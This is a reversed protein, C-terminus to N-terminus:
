SIGALSRDNRRAGRPVAPRKATRDMPAGNAREDDLRFFAVREDMARAQHDLAKATAANEEVLASNQQTVGDMQSLARNVQELGTAQEDSATAIDSVIDAVKKISAVIEALAAGATNVLKAGDQVQRNSNTILEKIDKAAQSSRQALSRVESAVVAFGRGAEGARAAEVAANLALLNTQRAIEDIVGIIDSIKRSSEEIRAMAKVAEAVVRGNRDAVDCASSASANAQEANEANRKVIASIEELSASTQELTAAQEETRQSLDMTSVSIETSADSVERTSGSLVQITERLRTITSNFEDRIAIYADPFDDTLRFTLDGSSLRGLGANLAHVVQSQEESHRRQEEAAAAQVQANIRRQESAEHELREKEIARDRFVLVARAMEGIEDRDKSAPVDLKTDGASLRRMVDGISGLRRILNRQVYFVAIAGSVILSLVAVIILLTRNSDLNDILRGIGLKMRQETENVLISVAQDLERQIRANEDITRDARAGAALEKGRLALVSDDGHGFTLLDAIAKKTEQDELIKSVKVLSDASARFRDQFPVLMAADNAVSAESIVSAVLHSQAAIELANRLGTIQNTVLDKIVRSSRKVADESQVMLDFNLDDILSILIGTLREHARFVNQLRAMDNAGGAQAKFDALKVLAGVQEKLNDFKAGKPLKALQKQARRASSTFRDELLALIPGSSTLTGATLLGTVLNTEAGVEITAQMIQLGDNVLAKVIKDATKGVDEATTVVDFYSDDVIPGLKEGIRAHTKHLADLKAELTGRLTSREAIAIALSKLNVDLRQSTAEVSAFAASTRGERLREMAASLARYREQITAAIAKQEDATKASVFRAAAASIEGSTASLRLADTMLPVERNAVSQVGLEAMSFSTIAVGAAAVTMISVAAFAVQLKVKIGLGEIWAPLKFWPRRHLQPISGITVPGAEPRTQHFSKM